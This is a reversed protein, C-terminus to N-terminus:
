DPLWFAVSYRGKTAVPGSESSAPEFRANREILRCPVGDLSPSGSSAEVVCNKARGDVTIDFAVIVNGQQGKRLADSPYDSAGLWRDENKPTAGGYERVRPWSSNDQALAASACLSIGLAATLLIRHMM